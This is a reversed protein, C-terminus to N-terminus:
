PEACIVSGDAALLARAGQAQCDAAQAARTGDEVQQAQDRELCSNLSVSASIVASSALLSGLMTEPAALLTAGTRLVLALAEGSCHGLAQTLSPEVPALARSPQTFRTVLSEVAPSAASPPPAVPPNPSGAPHAATLCMQADNETPSAGPLPEYWNSNLSSSIPDPM